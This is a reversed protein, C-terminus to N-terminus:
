RARSKGHLAEAATKETHHPACLSQLNDWDYRLDPREALPIKHDVQDAPRGCDPWECKPNVDLKWSRLKRWRTTSGPSHSGQWQPRCPCRRGLYVRRCYPCVQPAARPVSSAASFHQGAPPPAGTPLHPM